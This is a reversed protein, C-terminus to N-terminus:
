TITNDAKTRTVIACGLDISASKLFSAEDMASYFDVYSMMQDIFQTKQADETVLNLHLPLLTNEVSENKQCSFLIAGCVVASLLITRKM